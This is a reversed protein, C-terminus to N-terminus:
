GRLVRAAVATMDDGRGHRSAADLIAGPTESLHKSLSARVSREIGSSGLPGWAGDSLLVLVDRPRLCEKFVFPEVEGSGLRHKSAEGTLLRISGEFAVTYARSDGVAVGILHGAVVAAAVLTTEAGGLLASDLRRAMAAWAEDRLLQGLTAERFWSELLSAARRAVTQANGAGDLLAVWPVPARGIVHADQNETHRRGEQPRTQAFAEVRM